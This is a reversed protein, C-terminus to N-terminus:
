RSSERELDITYWYMWGYLGSAAQAAAWGLSPEDDSDPEADADPEFDADFDEHDPDGDLADLLAILREIEAEVSARLPFIAPCRGYDNKGM